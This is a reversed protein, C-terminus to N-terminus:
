KTLIEMLYDTAEKSHMVSLQNVIAKKLNLDTEKRAIEILATANNQVFLANIIAKKNDASSEQAYMSALAAGTKSKGMVGLQNIAYRRLAEDKENKVIDFLKDSNGSIFLGQIV